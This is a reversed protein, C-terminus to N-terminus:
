NNIDLNFKRKFFESMWKENDKSYRRNQELSANQKKLEEIEKKHDKKMKKIKKRLEDATMGSESSSSSLEEKSTGPKESGGRLRINIYFHDCAKIKGNKLSCHDQLITGNWTVYSMKPHIKM